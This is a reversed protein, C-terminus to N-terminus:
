QKRYYTYVFREEGYESLQALQLLNEAVKMIKWQYDFAPNEVQLGNTQTTRFGLKDSRDNRKWDGEWTSPTQSQHTKRYTGNNAFELVEKPEAEQNRQVYFVRGQERAEVLEWKGLLKADQAFSNGFFLFLFVVVFIGRLQM